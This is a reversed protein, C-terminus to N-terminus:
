RYNASQELTGCDSPQPAYAREHQGTKHQERTQGCGVGLEVLQQMVIGAVRSMETEDGEKRVMENRRRIDFDRRYCGNHRDGNPPARQANEKRM